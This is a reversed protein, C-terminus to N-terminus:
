IRVFNTSHMCFSQTEVEQPILFDLLVPQFKGPYQHLGVLLM